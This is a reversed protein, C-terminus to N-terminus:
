RALDSAPESLQFTELSYELSRTMHREMEASAQKTKGASVLDVLDRHYKAELAVDLDRRTKVRDAMIRIKM